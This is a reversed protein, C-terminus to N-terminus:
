PNVAAGRPSLYHIRRKEGWYPTERLRLTAGGSKRKAIMQMPIDLMLFYCISNPPCPAILAGMSFIQSVQM